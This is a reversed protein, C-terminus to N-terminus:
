ANCVVDYYYRGPPNEHECDEPDDWGRKYFIEYGVGNLTAFDRQM